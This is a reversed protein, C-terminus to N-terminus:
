SSSKVAWLNRLSQLFLADSGEPATHAALARLSCFDRDEVPRLSARRDAIPEVVPVTDKKWTPLSLAAHYALQAMRNDTQAYLGSLPRFNEPFTCGPHLFFQVLQFLKLCSFRFYLRERASLPFRLLWRPPLQPACQLETFRARSSRLWPM